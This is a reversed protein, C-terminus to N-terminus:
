ARNYWDNTKAKSDKPIDNTDLRPIIFRKNKNTTAINVETTVALKCGREKLMKISQNDYSGYPYSATWNNMDVGIKQLFGISLDLEQKMEQKTLSNWWYHNYGHNGIHHGNRILHKLQEENMYLERSFSKESMGIYKEFLTDVIKMRLEETLEVQLLRKIFIVDKTDMRSAQALKKYYFDFDELHYDKQYSKVLEKLDKVIILKDKVSALIFHIKNVDLVTHETIAKSPTYFSGQLKYKDLIPFVNNYHDNYADDFTLLISKEPIKTQNDISYIVEEMTIIHYYRRMYNIQEKFLNIDLGKIDPYRSNKLDRIYHYMVITLNNM